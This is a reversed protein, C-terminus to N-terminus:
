KSETNLFYCKKKSSATNTQRKVRKFKRELNNSELFTKTKTSLNSNGEIQTDGNVVFYM